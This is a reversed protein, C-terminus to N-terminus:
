RPALWVRTPFTTAARGMESGCDCAVHIWPDIDHPCYFRMRHRCPICRISFVYDASETLRVASCVSPLQAAVHPTLHVTMCSMEWDRIFEDSYEEIDDIQDSQASALRQRKPSSDSSTLASARAARRDEVVGGIIESDDPQPLVFPSPPDTSAVSAKRRSSCRCPSKM